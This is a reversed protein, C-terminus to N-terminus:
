ASGRALRDFERRTLSPAYESIIPGLNRDLWKILVEDSRGAVRAAFEDMLDGRRPLIMEPGAEGAGILTAGDVIGGQAYWSVSLTAPNPISGLVPVEILDYNIHPLPIHPWSIQFNFFGKITDVIGGVFNKAAEMPGEIAAQIGNWVGTVTSLVSDFVSSVTSRVANVAGSVTSTIADWAGSIAGSISSWTSSVFGSVADFAGRITSKVTDVAGSVTASIADWANSIATKIGEWVSVVSSKVANFVSSVTNKVADVAASVNSTIASWANAIAQRIGDFILGINTALQRATNAINGFFTSFGNALDSIFNKIADFAGRIGNELMPLGENVLAGMLETVGQFVNAAQEFAAGLIDVIAAFAEGIRAFADSLAANIEGGLEEGFIAVITPALMSPISMFADGLAQPLKMVLNVVLTVLRPVVNYLVAGLSDFLQTLLEGLDATEDFIGTLFNQWSASLMGMSGGITKAAEEATTGSIGMNDQIVHIAEIVDSYNDINFEVGALEGAEKLLRQMEEKTGGYGLKLNDLMTYNQKAFGQYANTISAMDTGMKNANDSMDVIAKDAIEAAKVTDGDLSSILSASFGTVTEMYDNMSLGSSIYARKANDLVNGQATMLDGYKGQIAEVSSGVSKAYDEISKGGAGFLTEVGGVLQEYNSYNDFANNFVDVAKSAIASVANSILNGAAVQFAGGFGSGGRKGKSELESVAGEDMMPKILVYGNGVEQEGAM